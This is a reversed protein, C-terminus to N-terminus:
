PSSNLAGVVCQDKVVTEGEPADKEEDEKDEEEEGLVVSKWGGGGFKDAVRWVQRALERTPELIVATPRGKARKGDTPQNLALCPALFALTKGSGTPACVLADRDSSLIGWTTAQVSTPTALKLVNTWNQQLPLPFSSLSLLPSPLPALGTLKTRNLRLYDADSQVPVAM